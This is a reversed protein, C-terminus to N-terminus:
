SVSESKVEFLHFVFNDDTYGTGIYVMNDTKEFSMGTMATYFHREETEANVHVLAWFVPRPTAGVHLVRANKPMRVTFHNFQIPYKYITSIM